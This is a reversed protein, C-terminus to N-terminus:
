VATGGALNFSVIDLFRWDLSLLFGGKSNYLGDHSRRGGGGVGVGMMYGVQDLQAEGEAEPRALVSLAGTLSSCDM